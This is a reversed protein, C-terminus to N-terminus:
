PMAVQGLTCVPKDGEKHVYAYTVTGAQMTMAADVVPGTLPVKTQSPTWKGSKAEYTYFQLESTAPAADQAVAESPGREIVLGLVAGEGQAVLLLKRLREGPAWQAKPIM